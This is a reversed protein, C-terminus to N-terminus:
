RPKAIHDDVLIDLEIEFRHEFRQVLEFRDALEALDDSPERTLTAVAQRMATPRFVKQLVRTDRPRYVTARAVFLLGACSEILSQKAKRGAIAV